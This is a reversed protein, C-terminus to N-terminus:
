IPILSLSLAVGNFLTGNITIIMIKDMVSTSTQTSNTSIDCRIEAGSHSGDKTFTLAGIYFMTVNMLCINTSLHVVVEHAPEIGIMEFTELDHIRHHDYDNEEECLLGRGNNLYHKGHLLIM